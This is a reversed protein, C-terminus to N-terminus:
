EKGNKNRELRVSFFPAVFRVFRFCFRFRGVKFNRGDYRRPNSFFLSSLLRLLMLLLVFLLKCSCSRGMGDWRQRFTIREACVAGGRELSVTAAYLGRLAVLLVFLLM